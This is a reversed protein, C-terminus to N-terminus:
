LLIKYFKLQIEYEYVAAIKKRDIIISFERIRLLNYSSLDLLQEDVFGPECMMEIPSKRARKFIGLLTEYSADDQHFASYFEPIPKSNNFLQEKM